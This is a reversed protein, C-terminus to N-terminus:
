APDRKMTYADAGSVKYYRKRVGVTAFGVSKYLNIAAENDVRDDTEERAARAVEEAEEMVKEGILQPDDLLQDGAPM